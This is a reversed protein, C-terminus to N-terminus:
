KGMFLLTDVKCHCQLEFGVEDHVHRPAELEWHKASLVSGALGKPAGLRAFGVRMSDWGLGEVWMPFKLGM